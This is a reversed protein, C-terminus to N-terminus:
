EVGHQLVRFNPSSLFSFLRPYMCCFERGGQGIGIGVTGQKEGPKVHTTNIGQLGEGKVSEQSVASVRKKRLSLQNKKELFSSSSFIRETASEVM